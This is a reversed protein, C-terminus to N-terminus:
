INPNLQSLTKYDSININQTNIPTYYQNIISKYESFSMKVKKLYDFLLYAKLNKPKTKNIFELFNKNIYHNNTKNQVLIADSDVYVTILSATIFPKNLMLKGKYNVFMM